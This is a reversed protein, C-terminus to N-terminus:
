DRRGIPLRSQAPCGFLERTKCCYEGNQKIMLRYCPRRGCDLDRVAVLVHRKGIRKSIHKNM